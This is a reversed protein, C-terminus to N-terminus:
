RCLGKWVYSYQKGSRGETTIFSLEKTAPLYYLKLKGDASQKILSNAGPNSNIVEDIEAKTVVLGLKGISDDPNVAYIHVGQDRCYLAAPQGPDRNLRDDGPEWFEVGNGSPPLCPNDGAVNAYMVGDIFAVARIPNKTPQASWGGQAFTYTGPLQTKTYGGVVAGTGDTVTVSFQGPPTVTITGGGIRWIGCDTATALPFRIIPYSGTVGALAANPPQAAFVVLVILLVLPVIQSTKM